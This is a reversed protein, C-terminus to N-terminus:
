GNWSERHVVASRPRKGRELSGSARDPLPYGITVVGVPTHHGPIDLLAGLGPIAHVGLFGAAVGENVAALLVAMLAAGADVWWYPVPWDIENGDPGLKDPERYRERYILESVTLVIHAPARSIWPDFGLEVYGPENALDAIARRKGEATVIVFGLGQSNGASPARRGADVIRDLVASPVPDPRYNRVMR